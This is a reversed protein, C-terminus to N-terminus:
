IRDWVPIGRNLDIHDRELADPSQYRKDAARRCLAYGISAQEVSWITGFVARNFDGPLSNSGEFGTIAKCTIM